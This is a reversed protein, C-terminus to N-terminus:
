KWWKKKKKGKQRKKLKKHRKPDYDEFINYYFDDAVSAFFGSRIGVYGGVIAGTTLFTAVPHVIVASV